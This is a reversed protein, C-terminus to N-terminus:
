VAVMGRATSMLAAYTTMLEQERASARPGTGQVLERFRETRTYGAGLEEALELDLAQLARCLRLM